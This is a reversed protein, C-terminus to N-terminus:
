NSASSIGPNNFGKVELRFDKLFIEDNHFIEFFAGSAIDHIKNRPNM